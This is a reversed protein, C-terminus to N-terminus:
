GAAGAAPGSGNGPGPGSGNGGYGNSDHRGGSHGNTSGALGSAAFGSAADGAGRRGPLRLITGALSRAAVMAKEWTTLSVRTSLVAAPTAAIHELLRYYIGAM